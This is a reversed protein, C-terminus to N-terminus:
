VRAWDAVPFGFGDAIEVAIHIQEPTWGADAVVGTADGVVSHLEGAKVTVAVPWTWALGVVGEDQIVLPDGNEISVDCQTADYADGSSEFTKM